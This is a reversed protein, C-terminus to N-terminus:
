AAREPAAEPGPGVAGPRGSRGFVRRRFPAALQALFGNPMPESIGIRVPPRRDPNLYTGFLQDWLMINEGFNRNGEDLLRSHHWRHVSPTNFVYDVAGRAVKVNCHSLMGVFSNFAAYLVLVDAGAGLVVLPPTTLLLTELSDFPHFRATNLWHLRGSSHHLAHFRWLLPIRHAARHAWYAGFDGILVALVVQGAVPWHAPWLWVDQLEALRAALGAVGATVAAGGLQGVAVGSLLSHGVDNREQYDRELWAREHPLLRELVHLLVALAVNTGVIAVVPDHGRSLLWVGAAMMGGLLGPWVAVLVARHLLRAM